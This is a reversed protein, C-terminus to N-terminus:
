YWYWFDDGMFRALIACIVAIIGIAFIALATNDLKFALGLSFVVGFVFGCGYRIAKEPGDPKHGDDM